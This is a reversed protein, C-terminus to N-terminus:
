ERATQAQMRPGGLSQRRLVPLVLCVQSLVTSSSRCGSLKPRAVALHRAISLGAHRRSTSTAVDEHCAGSLSLVSLCLRYVLYVPLIESLNLIKLIGGTLARTATLYKMACDHRCITTLKRHGDSGSWFIGYKLPM